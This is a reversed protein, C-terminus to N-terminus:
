VPPHIYIFSVHTNKIVVLSQMSVRGLSSGEGAVCSVCGKSVVGYELPLATLWSSPSSCSAITAGDLFFFLVSGGSLRFVPYM